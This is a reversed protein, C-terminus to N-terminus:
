INKQIVSRVNQVYSRGIPIRQEGVTIYDYEIADIHNINVSYSKHTQLFISAPVKSIFDKLTSRIMYKKNGTCHFRLYNGDSMIWQLDRFKIKILLYDKKIIIGDHLVRNETDESYDAETAQNDARRFFAIEISSYLDKDTFPKVLYGDPKVRKAREITAKDAHSTLFIFPLNYRNRITDAVTIGDQGDRLVIDLMVIDPCGTELLKEAEQIDTAIGVVHYGLGTLKARIDEAIILEDEVILVKIEDSPEM